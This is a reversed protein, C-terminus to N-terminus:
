MFLITPISDPHSEPPTVATMTSSGHSSAQLYTQQLKQFVSSSPTSMHTDWNLLEYAVSLQVMDVSGRIVIETTYVLPRIINQMLDAAQNVLNGEFADCPLLLEALKISRVGPDWCLIGHDQSVNGHYFTSIDKFVCKALLDSAQEESDMAICTSEAKEQTHTTYVQSALVCQM